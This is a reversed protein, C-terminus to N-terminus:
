FIIDKERNVEHTQNIGTFAVDYSRKTGIPIIGSKDIESVNRMVNVKRKPADHIIGVCDGEM